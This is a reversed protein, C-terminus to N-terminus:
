TRLGTNQGPRASKIAVAPRAVSSGCSPLPGARLAQAPQLVHTPATAPSKRGPVTASPNSGATSRRLQHGTHCISSASVVWLLDAEALMNSVAQGDFIELTVGHKESAQDQLHHRIAVPIEQVTFFAVAAM